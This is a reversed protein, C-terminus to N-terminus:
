IAKLSKEMEKQKEILREFFPRKEPLLDDLTVGTRRQPRPRAVYTQNLQSRAISNRGALRQVAIVKRFLAKGQRVEQMSNLTMSENRISTDYPDM